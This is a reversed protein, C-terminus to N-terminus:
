SGLLVAEKKMSGRINGKRRGNRLSEKIGFSGGGDMACCM